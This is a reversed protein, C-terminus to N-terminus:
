TGRTLDGPRDDGPGSPPLWSASREHDPRDPEIVAWVEKGDDPVQNVGHRASLADILFRGRGSLADLAPLRVRGEHDEPTGCTPAEDHVDVRVGSGVRRLLLQIPPKGHRVANGVLESVVLSLPEVVAEMRVRHLFRRAKKRAVAAASVDPPLDYREQAGPEEGLAPDRM